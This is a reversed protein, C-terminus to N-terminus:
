NTSNKASIRFITGDHKYNTLVYLNGDPGLVLDTIIGFNRGFIISGTESNTDATKDSLPGSLVLHTRTKDLPFNFITGNKVSGVFLNDKYKSGLNDTHLFLVSTPAITDIWIFEPDRYIGKGGFTELNEPNFGRTAKSFGIVEKWGSNFGPLVLNIEDDTSRGNETEWLNGTLSDFGIGFSNRIGYAYYKNLPDEDGLIGKDVVAGDFTIRLVGGRGDPPPGGKNNQAKTIFSQNQVYNLNGIVLYVSKKDSGIKLVGGNHSPGPITPLDLLLKPNVLKGNDYEYRYLRNGLVEGGDVNQTETYFLFVYRPKDSIAIGLLGRESVNAVNVDLVTGVVTGNKIEKVKGTNKELVLIDDPGLFNMGTPFKFGTAYEQIQLQSDNIMPLELSKDM